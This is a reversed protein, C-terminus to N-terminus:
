FGGWGRHRSGVRRASRIHALLCLPSHSPCSVPPTAPIDSVQHHVPATDSPVLRQSPTRRSSPLSPRHTVKRIQDVGVTVEATGQSHTHTNGHENNDHGIGNLQKAHVLIIFLLPALPHPSSGHLSPQNGQLHRM